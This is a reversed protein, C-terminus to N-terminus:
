TLWTGASIDLFNNQCSGSYFKGMGAMKVKFNSSRESHEVFYGARNAKIVGIIGTAVVEM